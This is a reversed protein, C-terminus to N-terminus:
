RAAPTSTHAPKYSGVPHPSPPKHCPPSPLQRIAWYQCCLSLPSQLTLACPPSRNPERSQTHSRGEKCFSFWYSVHWQVTPHSAIAHVIAVTITLSHLCQGLFDARASLNPAAIALPLVTARTPCAVSTSPHPSSKKSAHSRFDNKAARHQQQDVRRR